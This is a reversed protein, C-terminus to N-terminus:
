PVACPGWAALVQAIDAQNVVGDGNIDTQCRMGSGPNPCPGWTLILLFLDDINVVGDPGFVDAACTALQCEDPVGDGNRDTSHGSIIDCDDPIGNGNCDRHHIELSFVSASGSDIRGSHDDFHAGVVALPAAAAAGVSIGLNDYPAAGAPVLKAQQVWDRARQQFIYAAGSASGATAHIISGVVMRDGALCVSTGFLDGPAADTPFLKASQAWHSNFRAFVYAAGAREGRQSDRPAGIAAINGLISVTTGARLNAQADNPQLLAQFHWSTGARRFVCAAGADIQEGDRLPAGAILQDLGGAVAYGLRDSTGANPAMLKAQLPWSSTARDQTFVYVAGADPAAEDDFQAGIVASVDGEASSCFAVSWGFWDAQQPDPNLIKVQQTWTQGRRRFVYAAGVDSIVDGSRFMGVIAIDGAPSIAVANGFANFPGGDDPLLKAEQVWADGQRRFVYAAGANFGLTDNDRAGVVIREGNDSIAVAAGFHDFSEGDPAFLKVSADAPCSPADCEDPLGNENHDASTGQMIDCGDPVGNGNCDDSGPGAFASIIPATNNITRANDAPSPVNLPVGTPEGDFRIDPNSFHAIRTGPSTAMVTRWQEGSAGFFRHGHSYPYAGPLPDSYDHQCGLNHGLEHAFTLNSVACSQQVVSFAFQRFNSSPQFMTFATGCNGNFSSVLLSTLDAHYRDRLEFVEDLYGDDPIALRGLDTSLDEAEVYNTPEIHALRVYASVASNRYALNTSAVAAHALARIAADSGLAGRAATTYLVMVDILRSCVPVGVGKAVGDDSRASIQQQPGAACPGLSQWDVREILSLQPAPSPRVQFAGLSISWINLVLAEDDVAVVFDGDEIAGNDHRTMLKGTSTFSHPSRADVDVVKGLLTSAPFLNIAVTEHITKLADLGAPDIQALRKEPGVQRWRADQGGRIGQEIPAADSFLRPITEGGSRAGPQAFALPASLMALALLWRERM